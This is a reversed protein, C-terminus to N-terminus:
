APMEAPTMKKFLSPLSFSALWPILLLVPLSSLSSLPLAIWRLPSQTCSSTLSFDIALSCTLWQSHVCSCRQTNRTSVLHLVVSKLLLVAHTPLTLIHSLSPMCFVFISFLLCYVSPYIYLFSLFHTVYLKPTCPALIGNPAVVWPPHPTQM